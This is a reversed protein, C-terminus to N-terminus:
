TRAVPHSVDESRASWFRWWPRHKRELPQLDAMQSPRLRRRQEVELAHAIGFAERDGRLALTRWEAALRALEIDELHGLQPTPRSPTM